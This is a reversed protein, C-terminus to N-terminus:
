KEASHFNCLNRSTVLHFKMWALFMPLMSKWAHDSVETVTPLGHKPLYVCFFLPLWSLVHTLKVLKKLPQIFNLSLVPIRCLQWKMEVWNEKKTAKCGSLVIVNTQWARWLVGPNENNHLRLACPNKM